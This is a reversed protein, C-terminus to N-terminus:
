NERVNEDRNRLLFYNFPFFSFKLSYRNLLIKDKKIKFKTYDRFKLM